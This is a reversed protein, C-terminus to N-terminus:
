GALQGPDPLRIAGAQLLSVCSDCLRVGRAVFHTGDQGCLACVRTPQAQRRSPREKPLALSQRIEAVWRERSQESAPQEAEQRSAATSTRQAKEERWRADPPLQDLFGRLVATIEAAPDAGPQLAGIRSALQGRRWGADLLQLVLDGVEPTRLHAQLSSPLDGFVAKHTEADLLHQGFLDM